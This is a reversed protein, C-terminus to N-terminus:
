NYLVKANNDIKNNNDNHEIDFIINQIIEKENNEYVVEKIKNTQFINNLSYINFINEFETSGTKIHYKNLLNDFIFKNAWIVEFNPPYIATLNSIGVGALVDCIGSRFSVIHKIQKCFEIFDTMELFTNKYKKYARNKSNFVVDYGLNLLRDALTKWFKTDLVRYDFMVAEPILLITNNPTIGLKKIEKEASLKNNHTLQPLERPPNYELDLLNSYSDAFTYNKQTGRYPFFIYNIKGKRISKQIPSTSQLIEFDSNAVVEDIADFSKIFKSLKPKDTVYIIKGPNKRKFEKLLSAVFFIDGVGNRSFIIYDNPYAKEISHILYKTIQDQYKKRLERRIHKNFFLIYNTLKIKFKLIKIELKFNSM